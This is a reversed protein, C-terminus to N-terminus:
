QNSKAKNVVRNIANFCSTYCRVYKGLLANTQDLVFHYLMCDPKDFNTDNHTKHMHKWSLEMGILVHVKM